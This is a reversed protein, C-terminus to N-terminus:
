RQYLDKSFNAGMTLVGWTHGEKVSEYAEAFGRGTYNDQLHSIMSFVGPFGSLFGIKSVDNM